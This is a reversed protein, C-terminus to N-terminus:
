RDLDTEDTGTLDFARNVFSHVALNIETQFRDRDLDNMRFGAGSYRYHVAYLTLWNLSEGPHDPNEFRTYDLMLQLQAGALTRIETPNEVLEEAIEEIDHIRGYSLNAASMWAKLANEVAQQAHFGYDEQHFSEPEMMRNFTDLQRYAAQIREKVDPWSEPYHDECSNDHDFREGNMVTGDRLAQGAVHNKARKCYEFRERTMATVDVSLRPPNLRFYERAAKGARAKAALPATPCIIMLDVDSDPRHDGRARSGFLIVASPLVADQVARALALGVGDPKVPAQGKTSHSM